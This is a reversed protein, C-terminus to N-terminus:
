KKAPAKAAKKPPRPEPLPLPEVVPGPRMPTRTMAAYQLRAGVDQQVLEDIIEQRTARPSVHVRRLRAAERLDAVTRAKALAARAEEKTMALRSAEALESPTSATKKPAVKAPASAIRAAAAQEATAPMVDARLLI